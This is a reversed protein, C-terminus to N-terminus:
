HGSHTLRKVDVLRPRGRLTRKVGLLPRFMRAAAFRRKTGPQMKRSKSSIPICWVGSRPSSLCGVNTLPALALEHHDPRRRASRLESAPSGLAIGGTAAWM